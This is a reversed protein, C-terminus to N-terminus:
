NEDREQSDDRVTETAEDTHIITKRLRARFSVFWAVAGLTAAVFAADVHASWLFAAAVSM